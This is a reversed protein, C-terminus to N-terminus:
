EIWEEIIRRQIKRVYGRARWVIKMKEGIKQKNRTMFMMTEVLGMLPMHHLRTLRRSRM